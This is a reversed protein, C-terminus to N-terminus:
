GPPAPVRAAAVAEQLPGLVQEWAQAAVRYVAVGRETLSCVKRERGGVSEVRCIVCGEEVLERLAPYIMADTPDCCAQTAERINRALAYGHMSRRNLEALLFFRCVGRSILRSWYAEDELVM